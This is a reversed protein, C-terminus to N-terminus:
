VVFQETLSTYELTLRVSFRDGVDASFYLSIYDDQPESRAVAELGPIFAGKEDLGILHLGPPLKTRNHMPYARLLVAVKGDLKRFVAVMLAIPHGTLKVGLDMVRRIPSGSYNPAIAWLYEAAKWRLSEDPTNQILYVLADLEEMNSPFAVESQSNYLQRVARSVKEPTELEIGRVQKARFLLALSKSQFLEEFTQWGVERIGELWRSLVWTVPTVPQVRREYLKQLWHSENLLAGWKGFTTNLRPSYLSPKSLEEILVEAETNSLKPLATIEGKEDPCFNLATELVDLNPVVWDREIYYLRYIPDYDAKNKLNNRSVFGWAHLYQKDLDVRIPLYYDAVMSPIDVWEQPVAFDAVDIADSPILVLRKSGWNIGCGNVFEWVKPLVKENPFISLSVELGLNTQMWNLFANLCLSNLYAYNRGTENSYGQSASKAQELDSDSLELWLHESYLTSLTQITLNM